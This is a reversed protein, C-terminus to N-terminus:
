EKLFLEAEHLTNLLSMDEFNKVEYDPFRDLIKQIISRSAKLKASYKAKGREYGEYYDNMKENKLAEIQGDKDAFRQLAEEKLEFIEKNKETLQSQLDVIQKNKELLRPLKELVSTYLKNEKHKAKKTITFSLDHKHKFWVCAIIYEIEEKTM